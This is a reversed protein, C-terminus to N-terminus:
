PVLLEGNARFFRHHDEPGFGALREVFSARADQGGEPHPYDTAFAFVDRLPYRGLYTDLPEFTFPTVRVNRNLYESPRYPLTQRMTRSIDHRLDLTEALPGIWQAALEIAGFRLTPHREFVGGVVLVTLYHAAFLDMTSLLYPGVPEGSGMLDAQLSRPQDWVESALLGGEGGIHICVAADLEAMAAWLPDVDSAAPSHRGAIPVGHPILFARTGRRGCRQVEAVLDDVPAVPLVAVPRLRDPAPSAWDHLYDNYRRAAELGATGQKWIPQCVIVQPFILQRDIGLSDLVALRVQPDFAGPANGGKVTAPDVTDLDLERDPDFFARLAPNTDIWRNIEDGLPGLVDPFQRAPLMLHSDLDTAAVEFTDTGPAHITAM